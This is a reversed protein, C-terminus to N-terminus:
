QQGSMLGMVRNANNLLGTRYATYVAIGTLTLVIAALGYEVLGQGERAQGLRACAARDGLYLGAVVELFQILEV